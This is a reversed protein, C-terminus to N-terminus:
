VGKVRFGFDHAVLFDVAPAKAGLLRLYNTVQGRHYSQHNVVHMLTRWLPYSWHEGAFNTYTLTKKMQADSVGAWFERTDHELKLMFKQLEDATNLDHDGLMKKPSRGHWRELWLWEVLAMHTVTQRLSPFSGEFQQNFQRRTLGKCVDYQRDRAWYNYDLLESIVSLPIM